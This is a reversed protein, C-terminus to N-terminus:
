PIEFVCICWYNQVETTKNIFSSGVIINSIKKFLMNEQVIQLRLKKTIM